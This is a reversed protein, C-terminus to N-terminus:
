SLHKLYVNKLDMTFAHIDFSKRYIVIHQSVTEKLSNSKDSFRQLNKQMQNSLIEFFNVSYLSKKFTNM